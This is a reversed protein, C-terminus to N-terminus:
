RGEVELIVMRRECEEGCVSEEEEKVEGAVRTVCSGNLSGRIQM